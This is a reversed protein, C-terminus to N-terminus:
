VSNLMLIAKDRIPQNRFGSADPEPVTAGHGNDFQCQEQFIGASAIGNPCTGTFGAVEVTETPPIHAQAHLLHQALPDNAPFMTTGEPLPFEFGFKNTFPDGLSQGPAPVASFRG